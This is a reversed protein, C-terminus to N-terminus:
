SLNLLTVLVPNCGRHFNNASLKPACQVSGSSSNSGLMSPRQKHLPRNIPTDVPQCGPVQTEPLSKMVRISLHSVTGEAKLLQKGERIRANLYTSPLLHKHSCGLSLGPVSGRALKGSPPLKTKKEAINGNLDVRKTSPGLLGMQSYSLSEEKVTKLSLSPYAEMM